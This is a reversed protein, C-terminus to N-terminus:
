PAQEQGPHIRLMGGEIRVPQQARLAPLLRDLLSQLEDATFHTDINLHLDRGVFTQTHLDRFPHTSSEHM